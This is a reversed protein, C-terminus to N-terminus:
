GLRDTGTIADAVRIADVLRQWDQHVPSQEMGPHLRLRRRGSATPETVYDTMWATDALQSLAVVPDDTEDVDSVYSPQAM